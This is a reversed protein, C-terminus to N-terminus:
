FVERNALGLKEVRDAIHYLTHGEQVTLRVQADGGGVTFLELLEVPTLGPPVNYTGAQLRSDLGERVAYLKLYFPLKVLGVQQLQESAQDFTAGSPIVVLTEGADQGNIPVHLYWTYHIYLSLGICAALLVLSILSSPGALCGCGPFEDQTSKTM